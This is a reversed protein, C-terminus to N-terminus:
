TCAKNYFANYKGIDQGNIISNGTFDFRVGPIGGFPGASVPKNYAPGFKGVDQGNALRNDNFDVPWADPDPEDNQAATLACHQGPVTGIYTEPASNTGFSSDRFGDCDFDGAPVTWSPLLQSANPWLPCNDSLDAVGDADADSTVARCASFESTDGSSAVATATVFQGVTVAPLGAATFTYYGNSDTTGATSGLFVRGEGNGSSDCVPVSFFQVTVSTTVTSNLTGTVQTSGGSNTAMNLYPFNQKNNPGTDADGNDNATVGDNSIDIGLGTNGDISNDIILSGVGSDLRIGPGSNGVVSTGTADLGVTNKRFTNGNTGSSTVRIGGAANGSIVNGSGAVSGGITNAAAGGDLQVGGGSNGIAASGAANTGIYNGSVTNGTTGSGSVYVGVDGNGSIVNRAGATTGGITNGTSGGAIEVGASANPIAATGAANLGVTNGTVSVGSAGGLMYIGIRGNGSVLNAGITTTGTTSQVTIGDVTNPVAATGLQNTGVFANLVGNGSGASVIYVGSGNGSITNRAGQIFNNSASSQIKVGSGANGIAVTGSAATGIFNGEISNGSTGSDSILIGDGSNGSIVNFDFSGSGGVTNNSAGEVIRVGTGNALAANGAANTGIYNGTLVNSTAAGGNILVGWSNGSIVSGTVTNTNSYGVQIGVDNPIAATGASNTGIFNRLISVNHTGNTLRIGTGANGSITNPQVPHGITLTGVSDTFIGDTNAIPASGAANTGIKSAYVGNGTSLSGSIYIGTGNGSIVDGLGFAGDGIQNNPSNGIRIGVGNGQATAGSPDTGIYSSWIKNGGGVGISIGTGSFNDVVLSLVVAGGGIITFGNAGGGANSGNLEILPTGSWGPQSSGDIYLGSDNIAPLPSTPMITHVGAGPINFRITDAGVRAETANIAERLSCHTVDCTGDNVDNNSNVVWQTEVWSTKVKYAVPSSAAFTIWGDNESWARGSFDGNAPNIHVGYNGTSGCTSNNQCSFNIWGDKESWAYGKLNGTYDNTVGWNGAAGGCSSDNSCNLNIWGINEGWMYGTVTTDNVQMGCNSCNAPEANIWGVNEGWAYQDGVNAPDINEASVNVALVGLVVMM